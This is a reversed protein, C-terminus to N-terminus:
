ELTAARIKAVVLAKATVAIISTAITAVVQVSAVSESAALAM